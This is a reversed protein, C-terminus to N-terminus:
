AVWGGLAEGARFGANREGDKMGRNMGFGKLVPVIRIIM